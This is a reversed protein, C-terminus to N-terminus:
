IFWMAVRPGEKTHPDYIYLFRLNENTTSIVLFLKFILNQTDEAEKASTQVRSTSELIKSFNHAYFFLKAIMGPTFGVHNNNEHWFRDGDKLVRFEDALICGFTPGVVGGPVSAESIGGAFM